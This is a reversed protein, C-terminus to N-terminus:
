GGVFRRREEGPARQWLRARRKAQRRLAVIRSLCRRQATCSILCLGDFVRYLQQANAIQPQLKSLTQSRTGRLVSLEPSRIHNLLDSIRNLPSGILYPECGQAHSRQAVRDLAAFLAPM